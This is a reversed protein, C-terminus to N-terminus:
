QDVPAIGAPVTQYAPFSVYGPKFMIFNAVSETPLPQTIATYSSIYFEGNDDTLIERVNITSRQAEPPFVYDELLDCCSGGKRRSKQRRM